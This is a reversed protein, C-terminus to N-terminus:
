RRIQGKGRGLGIKSNKRRLYDEDFKMAEIWGM